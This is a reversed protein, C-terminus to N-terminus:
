GREADRDKKRKNASLSASRWAREAKQKQSWDGLIRQVQNNASGLGPSHYTGPRM